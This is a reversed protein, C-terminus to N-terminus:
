APQIKGALITKKPWVKTNIFTLDPTDHSSYHKYLHKM